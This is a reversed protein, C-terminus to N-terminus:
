RKNARQIEPGFLAEGVEKAAFMATSDHAIGSVEVKRWNFNWGRERALRQAFEFCHRGRELRFAGEREAGASRDLEPHNPDTDALGLYLTLPSALYRQLAGDNSSNASLGGFGFGFEWDRRPFLDSGPNAAVIRVAETPYLGALRMVFQGGASHGVFYYRLTPNGEGARVADVIGPVRAFTWEERPRLVHKKFVGGRSYDENSFRNTEFLPAAILVNYREAIPAAHHCYEEANRLLGHFVVVLPGNSYSQPKYTFVTIANTGAGVTLRGFGTPLPAAMVNGVVLLALGSAAVILRSSLFRASKSDLCARNM